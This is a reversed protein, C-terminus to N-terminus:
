KEPPFAPVFRNWGLRFLERLTLPREPELRMLPLKSLDTESLPRIGDAHKSETGVRTTM